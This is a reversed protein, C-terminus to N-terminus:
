PLRCPLPVQWGSPKFLGSRLHRVLQMFFRDLHHLGVLVVYRRCRFRRALARGAEDLSLGLVSGLERMYSPLKLEALEDSYRRARVRWLQRLM